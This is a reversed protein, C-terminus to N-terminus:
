ITSVHRIKDIHHATYHDNLVVLQFIDGKMSVCYKKRCLLSIFFIELIIATESFFKCLFELRM